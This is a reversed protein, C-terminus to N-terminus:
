RRVERNRAAQISPEAVAPGGPKDFLRLRKRSQEDRPPIEFSGVPEPHRLVIMIGLPVVNVLWYIRHLQIPTIWRM